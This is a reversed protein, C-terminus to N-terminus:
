YIPTAKKNDELMEQIKKIEGYIEEKVENANKLHNNLKTQLGKLRDVNVGSLITTFINLTAASSFLFPAAIGGTLIAGTLNFGFNM